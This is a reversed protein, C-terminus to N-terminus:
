SESRLGLRFRVRVRVGVRVRVRAPEVQLYYITMLVFSYSSLHGMSGGCLARGQVVVGLDRAMGQVARDHAMAWWPM